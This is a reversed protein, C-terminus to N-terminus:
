GLVARVEWCAQLSSYVWSCYSWSLVGVGVLVGDERVPVAVAGGGGRIMGSLSRAM